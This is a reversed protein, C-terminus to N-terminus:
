RARGEAPVRRDGVPAGRRAGVPLFWGYARYFTELEPTKSLAAVGNAIVTPSPQPTHYRVARAVQETPPTPLVFPGFPADPKLTARGVEILNLDKTAPIPGTGKLRLVECHAPVCPKPLRGSVLKVWKNLDDAARVNVLRQQISAERFLMAAVPKEGTLARDEADGAPRAPLLEDRRREVVVQVTRDGPQLQGVALQLARDQM